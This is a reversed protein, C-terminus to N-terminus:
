NGYLKHSSHYRKEAYYLSLLSEDGNDTRNVKIKMGFQTEVLAVFNKLQSQVELKHKILMVWTFISHDDMITLFYRHGHISSVSYPGWIDMHVLEFPKSARNTNIKYSLKKQKLFHCTDCIANKNVHISPFEKFMLKMRALSVHGLKFHWLATCPLSCVTNSAIHTVFNNVLREVDRDKELYYLRRKLRGLGLEEVFPGLYLM